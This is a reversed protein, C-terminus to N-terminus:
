NSKGIIVPGQRTARLTISTGGPATITLQENYYGPRLLLIESGELINAMGAATGLSNVPQSSSGVGFLGGSQVFITRGDRVGVRGDNAVDTWRDLQLETMRSLNNHYSMINFFVDDVRSQEDPNLQAYLRPPATPIFFNAFAIQDQGWCALDLLTDAIQDDGPSTNCVGTQGATCNGCQRGQTHYLGFYHGLEHLQVAGNAASCGGIILINESDEVFSCKGGCIGNTLYLNVAGDNWRYAADSRASAEM